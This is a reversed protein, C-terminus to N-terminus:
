CGCKSRETVKGNNDIIKTIKGKDFFIQWQSKGFIFKEKKQLMGNENYYYWIGNKQSNKFHGKEMTEGNKYLQKYKGNSPIVIEPTQGFSTLFLFILCAFLLTFYKKNM